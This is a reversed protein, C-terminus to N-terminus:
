LFEAFYSFHGKFCRLFVKIVLFYFLLAHIFHLFDFCIMIKTKINHKSIQTNPNLILMSVNWTVNYKVSVSWLNFKKTMMFKVDCFVSLVFTAHSIVSSTKKIKNM